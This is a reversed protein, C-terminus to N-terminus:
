KKKNELILNAKREERRKKRAKTREKLWQKQFDRANKLMEKEKKSELRRSATQYDFWEDKYFGIIEGAASKQIMLYYILRKPVSRNNVVATSNVRGPESLVRISMGAQEGMMRIVARVSSEGRRVTVKPFEWESDEDQKILLWEIKKDETRRFVVASGILLLNTINAM